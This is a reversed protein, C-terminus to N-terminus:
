KADTTAGQNVLRCMSCCWTAPPDSVSAVVVDKNNGDDRSAHQQSELQANAQAVAERLRQQKQQQLLQRQNEEEEEKEMQKQQQQLLRQQQQSRAHLLDEVVGRLKDGRERAVFELAAAQFRSMHATHPDPSQVAQYGFVDRPRRQQNGGVAFNTDNTSDGGANSATTATATLPSRLQAPTYSIDGMRFRSYDGPDTVSFGKRLASFAGDGETVAPGVASRRRSLYLQKTRIKKDQRLAAELQDLHHKVSHEASLHLLEDAEAPLQLEHRAVLRREFEQLRRRTQVAGDTIASATPYRTM